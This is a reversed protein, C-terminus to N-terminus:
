KKRPNQQVVLTDVKHYIGSENECKCCVNFFYRPFADLMHM